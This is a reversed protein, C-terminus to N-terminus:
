LWVAVVVVFVVNNCYASVCHNGENVYEDRESKQYIKRGECALIERV